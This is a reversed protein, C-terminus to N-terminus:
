HAIDGGLLGSLSTAVKAEGLTRLQLQFMITQSRTTPTGVANQPFTSSYNVMLTTCEDKYGAGLGLGAVSFLPKSDSASATYLHRSMDFIVSGNVFINSNFNYASSASLGERTKDYGLLPNAEYRAYQLGAGLAGWRANALFDVRRMHHDTADFRAKAM